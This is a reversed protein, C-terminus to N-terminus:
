LDKCLHSSQVLVTEGYPDPLTAFLTNGRRVLKVRVLGTAETRRQVFNSSVFVSKRFEYQGEAPYTVCVEDSFM